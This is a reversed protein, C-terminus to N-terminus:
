DSQKEEVDNDEDDDLIIRKVENQILDALLQYGKVSPHVFDTMLEQMLHLSQQKHYQNGMNGIFLHSADFYIMQTHNTCFDELEKNVAEISPWFHYRKKAKEVSKAKSGFFRSTSSETLVGDHTSFPLMGMIVVVADPDHWSLYEATNLIGLVTAEESCYGQRLDNSGAWLWYISASLYKPLEGHQLRWLINSTQDGAIGLYLVDWGFDGAEFMTKFLSGVQQSEGNTMGLQKGGMKEVMEDGVFVVDFPKYSSQKAVADEVYKKNAEHAKLWGNLHSNSEPETFDLCTCQDDGGWLCWHDIQSAQFSYHKSIHAYDHQLRNRMVPRRFNPVLFSMIVGIVCFFLFATIKPYYEMYLKILTWLQQVLMSFSPKSRPAAPRLSEMEMPQAANNREGLSIM